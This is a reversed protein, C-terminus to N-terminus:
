EEQQNFYARPSAGLVRKFMTSFATPNDYGLDLVVTTVSQGAALRPLAAM